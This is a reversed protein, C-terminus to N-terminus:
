PHKAEIPPSGSTPTASWEDSGLRMFVVELFLHDRDSPTADVPQVLVSERYSGRSLAGSLRSKGSVQSQRVEANVSFAVQGLLRCRGLSSM